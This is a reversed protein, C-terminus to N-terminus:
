KVLRELKSVTEGAKLKIRVTKELGLEPNKLKIVHSGASLELNLIPTNGIRRKDITVESWPISNLKLLATGKSSSASTRVPTPEADSATEGRAAARRERYRQAVRERRAERAADKASLEDASAKARNARTAAAKAERAEKVAARKEERARRRQEAKSLPADPESPSLLAAVVTPEEREVAAMPQQPEPEQDPQLTVIIRRDGQEDTLTFTERRSAFGPRSVELMHDGSILGARTRPNEAGAVLEGDIRVEADPPTTEITASWTQPAIAGRVALGAAFLLVGGAAYAAWRRWPKKDEVPVEIPDEVLGPYYSPDHAREPLLPPGLRIRERRPPPPPPTPKRDALLDLPSAENPDPSAVALPDPHVDALPLDLASPEVEFEATEHAARSDVLRELSRLHSANSAASGGGGGGGVSLIPATWSQLQPQPEPTHEDYNTVFVGPSVIRGLLALGTIEHSAGVRKQM